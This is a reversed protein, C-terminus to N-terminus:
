KFNEKLIKLYMKRDEPSMATEHQEALSNPIATGFLFEHRVQEIKVEAGPKTKVIIDGMRLEAIRANIASPTLKKSVDDQAYTYSAFLTITILASFLILKTRM